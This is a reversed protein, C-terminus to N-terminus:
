KHMRSSPTTFARTLPSVPSTLVKGTRYLVVYRVDDRDLARASQCSAPHNLVQYSDLLPQRGAPPLQRPHETWWRPYSLLGTYGGMALVARNSIQYNMYPTTIITGGTNHQRLWQGAAAVAPTPISGKIRSDTLLSAEAPVTVMLTVVGVAAAATAVVATRSARVQLLSRVILGAGFAATISLPAGADREFRAPFGDLSIRSGVYMLACWALVTGAALVRSPTRFYRAAAALAALGFLGLWVLAPGLEALLQRAPAVAQSGLDNTVATPTNSSGFIVGGLDYIYAAYCASLLGVAVLTALMVGADRRRGQLLLYPLGGLGVLALLLVLYVSVVPHYFFISAGVVTVLAGSRLSPAQYLVMLAAVLMVM